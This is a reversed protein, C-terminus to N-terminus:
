LGRKKAEKMVQTHALWFALYEMILVFTFETTTLSFFQFKPNFIGVFLFVMTFILVLGTTIALMCARVLSSAKFLEIFGKM